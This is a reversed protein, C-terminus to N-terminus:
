IEVGLVRRFAFGFLISAFFFVVLWHPQIGFLRGISLDSYTVEISEIQRSADIPPEGPYFLLLDVVDATRAPSVKGWRGGVYLEKELSDRETKVQLRHRGPEKARIRWSVENLSEVRVGPTEVVVGEPAELSVPTRMPSADRLKVKVVAQEGPQLPSVDFRLNLQALILVVPILMVLMPFFAYRIYVLTGRLIRWQLRFLMRIDDGFLRVGILNGRIKNRVEHISEQRSTKGFIWLMLIGTVLSIALLPWIPGVSRFPAFLLDFLGTLLANLARVVVIM